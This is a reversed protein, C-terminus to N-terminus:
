AHADVRASAAEQDLRAENAAFRCLTESVRVRAMMVVPNADTRAYAEIDGVKDLWGKFEDEGIAHLHGKPEVDDWTPLNGDTTSLLPCSVFLLRAGDPDLYACARRITEAPNLTHEIVEYAVAVDYAGAWGAPPQELAAVEFVGDNDYMAMRARARTICHGNLDLGSVHDIGKSSLYAAFGGDNCSLDVIKGHEAMGTHRLGGELFAVRPIRYAETVQIGFQQEFPAEHVNNAYYRRYEEPDFAHRVMEWQRDRAQVIRPDDWLKYPVAQMVRWAKINEDHRVLMERLALIADVLADHNM